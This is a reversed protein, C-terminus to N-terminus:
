PSPRSLAPPPPPRDEPNLDELERGATEPYAVLVLVALLLPGSPSSRGHGPRHSGFRDSLVGALILGVASGM